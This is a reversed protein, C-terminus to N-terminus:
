PNPALVFQNATFRWNYLLESKRVRLRVAAAFIKAMHPGVALLGRSTQPATTAVQMLSHRSLVFVSDVDLQQLQM